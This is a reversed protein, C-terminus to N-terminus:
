RLLLQIHQNNHTFNVFELIIILSTVEVVHYVHNLIQEGANKYTIGLDVADQHDLPHFFHHCPTHGLIDGAKIGILSTHPPDDLQRLCLKETM